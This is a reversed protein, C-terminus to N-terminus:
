VEENGFLVGVAHPCLVRVVVVDRDMEVAHVACLVVCPLAKPRACFVTLPAYRFAPTGGGGRGLRAVANTHAARCGAPVVGVVSYIQQIGAADAILIDLRLPFGAGIGLRRRVRSHFSTYRCVCVALPEILREM